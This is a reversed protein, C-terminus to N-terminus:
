KGKERTYPTFKGLSCSGSLFGGTRARTQILDGDCYQSGFTKSVVIDGRRLGPCNGVVDNRWMRGRGAVYLITGEFTRIENAEDRRLCRQPAGATLGALAKALRAQERADSQETAATTACAAILLFTPMLLRMM